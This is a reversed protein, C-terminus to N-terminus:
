NVSFIKDVWTVIKQSLQCMDKGKKVNKITDTCTSPQCLQISGHQTCGGKAYSHNVHKQQNGFKIHENWCLISHFNDSKKITVDCWWMMRNQQLMFKDQLVSGGHHWHNYYSTEIPIQQSTDINPRHSCQNSFNNMLKGRLNHQPSLHNEQPLNSPDEVWNDNDSSAM